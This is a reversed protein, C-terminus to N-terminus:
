LSVCHARGRSRFVAQMLLASALLLGGAIWYIKTLASDTGYIDLVGRFVCGATLAATGTHWLRRATLSLVPPQRKLSMLLFPLTTLVLPVLFAYLMFFSYVGFSFHEYVGGLFATFLAAYLGTRATVLLGRRPDPHAPVPQPATNEIDSTFM